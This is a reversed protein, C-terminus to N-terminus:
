PDYQQCNLCTFNKQLYLNRDCFTVDNCTLGNTSVNMKNLSFTETVDIHVRVAM